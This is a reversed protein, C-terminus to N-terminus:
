DCNMKYVFWLEKNIADIQKVKTWQTPNEKLDKIFLHDQNALGSSVVYYNERCKTLMPYISIWQPYQLTDLKVLSDTFFLVDRPNLYSRAWERVPRVRNSICSQLELEVSRTFRVGWNDLSIKTAMLVIPITLISLRQFNYVGWGLVGISGIMAISYHYPEFIPVVLLPIVTCTHLLMWFFVRSKAIIKMRSHMNIFVFSVIGFIFIAVFPPFLDRMLIRSSQQLFDLIDSQQGFRSSFSGWTTRSNMVGHFSSQESLIGLDSSFIRWKEGHILQKQFWYLYWMTLPVCGVIYYGLRKISM